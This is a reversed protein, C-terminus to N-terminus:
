KLVSSTTSISNNRSSNFAHYPYLLQIFVNKTRKYKFCSSLSLHAVMKLRNGQETSVVNKCRRKRLLLGYYVYRVVYRRQMAVFRFSPRRKRGITNARKWNRASRCKLTEMRHLRRSELLMNNSFERTYRDVSKLSSLISSENQLVDQQLFPLVSIYFVFNLVQFM